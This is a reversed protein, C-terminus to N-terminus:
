AAAVFVLPCSQEAIEPQQLLRIIVRDQHNLSEFHVGIEYRKFGLEEVRIVTAQVCLAITGQRIDFELTDGVCCGESGKRYLKAGSESLDLVQGFETSTHRTPVRQHKRRDQNFGFIGM